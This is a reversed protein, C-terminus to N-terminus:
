LNSISGLRLSDDLDNLIPQWMNENMCKKQAMANMIPVIEDMELKYTKNKLDNELITELKKFFPDSGQNYVTYISYIHLAGKM